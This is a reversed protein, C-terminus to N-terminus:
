ALVVPTHHHKARIRWALRALLTPPTQSVDSVAPACFLSPISRKKTEAPFSVFCRFGSLCHPRTPARSHFAVVFAGIHM